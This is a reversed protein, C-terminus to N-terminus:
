YSGLVTLINMLHIYLFIEVMSDGLVAERMRISNVIVAVTAGMLFWGGVRWPNKFITSTDRLSGGSAASMMVVSILGWFGVGNLYQLGDGFSALNVM